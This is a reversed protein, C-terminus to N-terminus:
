SGSSCAALPIMLMVPTSPMGGTRTPTDSMSREVPRQAATAITAASM